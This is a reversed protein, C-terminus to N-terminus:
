KPARKCTPAKPPRRLRWYSWGARIRNLIASVLKYPSMGNERPFRVWSVINSRRQFSNVPGIGDHCAFRVWSFVKHSGYLLNNTGTGVDIELRKFRWIKSKYKFLKLPVISNSKNRKKRKSRFPLSNSKNWFSLLREWRM